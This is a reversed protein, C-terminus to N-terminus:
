GRLVAVRPHAQPDARCFADCPGFPARPNFPVEGQRQCPAVTPGQRPGSWVSDAECAAAAGLQAIREVLRVAPGPLEKALSRMAHTRELIVQVVDDPQDARALASLIGGSIGISPGADSRRAMTEAPRRRAAERPEWAAVASPSSHIAREAWAPRADALNGSREIGLHLL